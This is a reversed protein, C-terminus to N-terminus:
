NIQLYIQCPNSLFQFILSENVSNCCKKLFLNKEEKEKLECHDEVTWINEHDWTLMQFM